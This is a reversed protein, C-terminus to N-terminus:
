SDTLEVLGQDFAEDLHNAFWGVWEQSQERAGPGPQAHIARDRGQHKASYLARDAIDITQELGLACPARSFFPYAAYGVSCTIRLPTRDATLFPSARVVQLVKESFRRLHEPDTRKLVILFEEGGWRVLVDDKRMLHKLRGAFAKLVEDGSAHGHTDNVHKFFDIDVLFVGYVPVSPELEGPLGELHKQRTYAFRDTEHRVVDSVFRRNHTHTLADHLSRERLEDNLAVLQANLRKTRRALRQNRLSLHFAEVFTANMRLVLSVMMAMFVLGLVGMATYLEGGMLFFRATVPLFVPAAFLLFTRKDIAFAGLSGAFMGGM